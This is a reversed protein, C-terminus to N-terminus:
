IIGLKKARAMNKKHQTIVQDDHELAEAIMQPLDKEYLDLAKEIELSVSSQRYGSGSIYILRAM